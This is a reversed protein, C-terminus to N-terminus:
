FSIKTRLNEIALKTDRMCAEIEELAHEKDKLKESSVKKMTLLKHATDFNQLAGVYDAKQFFIGGLKEYIEYRSNNMRFMVMVDNHAKEIDNLLLYAMARGNYCEFDKPNLELMETYLRVVDEYKGSFLSKEMKGMLKERRSANALDSINEEKWLENIMAKLHACSVVRNKAISTGSSSRPFYEFIFNSDDDSECNYQEDNESNKREVSSDTSTELEALKLLSPSSSNLICSKRDPYSGFSTNNLPPSSSLLSYPDPLQGYSHSAKAKFSGRRRPTAPTNDDVSLAVCSRLYNHISIGISIIESIEKMKMTTNLLSLLKAKIGPTKKERFYKDGIFWIKMLDHTMRELLTELPINDFQALDIYLNLIEKAKEDKAKISAFQSAIFINKMVDDLTASTADILPELGEQNKILIKKVIKDSKTYFTFVAGETKQRYKFHHHKPANAIIAPMNLSNPNREAVIPFVGKYAPADSFYDTIIKVMKTTDKDTILDIKSLIIFLSYNPKGNANNTCYLKKIMELEQPFIRSTAGSIVYWICHVKEKIHVKKSDNSLFDSIDKEYKPVDNFEVGPVDYITVPQKPLDYKTITSTQPLGAEAKIDVNFIARILSSKGAGSGGGLLIITKKATKTQSFEKEIVDLLDSAFTEYTESVNSKNSECLVSQKHWKENNGDDYSPLAKIADCIAYQYNLSKYSYKQYQRVDKLLLACGTYNFLDLNTLILPFYPLSPYKKDRELKLRLNIFGDSPSYLAKYKEFMKLQSKSIKSWTIYLRAIPPSSLASIMTGLTAWNRLLRLEKVVSLFRSLIDARKDSSEEELISTITFAYIKKDIDLFNDFEKIISNKQNLFKEIFDFYKISSFLSFFLLTIQEALIKEPLEQLKPKIPDLTTFSPLSLPSFKCTQIIVYIEEPNYYFDGVLLDMVYERSDADFDEPFERLWYECFKGYYGAPYFIYNERIDKLIEATSYKFWHLLILREWLEISLSNVIIHVNFYADLALVTKDKEESMEEYVVIKSM